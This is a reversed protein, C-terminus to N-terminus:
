VLPIQVASKRFCVFNSTLKIIHTVMKAQVHLKIAYIKHVTNLHKEIHEYFLRMHTTIYIWNSKM